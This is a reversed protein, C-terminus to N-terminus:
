NLPDKSGPVMGLLGKVMASPDITQIVGSCHKFINLGSLIGWVFRSNPPDTEYPDGEFPQKQVHQPMKEHWSYQAFFWRALAHSARVPAARLCGSIADPTFSELLKAVDVYGLLRVPEEPTM